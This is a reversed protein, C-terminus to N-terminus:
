DVRNIHLDTKVVRGDDAAIYVEGLDVSKEANRLKAAWLRVKWVIGYDRNQELWMQSSTLTLKNLIPEKIATALAKDSDVKLKSRDMETNGTAFELFRGPRKVTLKKGAGFKVEVAKATADPDYYVIYWINPTLTAVSKESRIQVLRDRAEKGIYENGDKFLQLATPEKDAAMASRVPVFAVVALAIILFPLKSFKM